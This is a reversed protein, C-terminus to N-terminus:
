SFWAQPVPRPQVGGAASDLATDAVSVLVIPGPSRDGGGDARVPTRRLMPQCVPQQFLDDAARGAAM